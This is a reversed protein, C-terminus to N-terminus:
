HLTNVRIYPTAGRYGTCGTLLFNEWHAIRYAGGSFQYGVLSEIEEQPPVTTEM